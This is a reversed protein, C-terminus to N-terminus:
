ILISNKYEKSLPILPMIKIYGETIFASILVALDFIMNGTKKHYGNLQMFIIDQIIHMETYSFSSIDNQFIMAHDHSIEQVCDIAIVYLCIIVWPLSM